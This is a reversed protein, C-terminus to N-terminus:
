PKKTAFILDESPQWGDFFSLVSSKLKSHDFTSFTAHATDHVLMLVPYDTGMVQVHLSRHKAVWFWGLSGCWERAGDPGEIEDLFAEYMPQPAHPIKQDCIGSLEGAVQKIRERATLEVERKMEIRQLVEPLWNM